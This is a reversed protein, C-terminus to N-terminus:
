TWSDCNGDVLLVGIIFVFVFGEGKTTPKALTTVTTEVSNESVPFIVCKEHPVVL